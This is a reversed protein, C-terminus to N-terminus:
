LSNLLIKIDQKCDKYGIYYEADKKYCKQMLEMTVYEQDEIDIIDETILVKIADDLSLILDKTYNKNDLTKSMKYAYDYTSNM